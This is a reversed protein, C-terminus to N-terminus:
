ESRMYTGEDLEYRPYNFLNMSHAVLSVLMGFVVVTAEAWTPVPLQEANNLPAMAALRPMTRTKSAAVRMEQQPMLRPLHVTRGTPKRLPDVRGRVVARAATSVLFNPSRHLILNDEVVELAPRKEQENETLPIWTRGPPSSQMQRVRDGVPTVYRRILREGKVPATQGMYEQEQTSSEHMSTM